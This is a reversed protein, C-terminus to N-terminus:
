YSFREVVDAFAVTERVHRIQIRVREGVETEPVIVVFGREVRTLGDGQDGIEEIEVVRKDGVSVPPKNQDVSQETEINKSESGEQVSNSDSDSDVQNSILAVHYSESAEVSGERLEARPLEIVYSGRHEEVPASFLSILENSIEM